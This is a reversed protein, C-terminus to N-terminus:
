WYVWNGIFSNFLLIHFLIKMCSKEMPRTQKLCKYIIEVNTNEGKAKEKIEM